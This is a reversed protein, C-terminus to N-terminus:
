YRTRGPQYESYACVCVSVHVSYVCAFLRMSACRGYWYAFSFAYLVDRSVCKQLPLSFVMTKNIFKIIQVIRAFRQTIYKEIQKKLMRVDETAENKVMNSQM